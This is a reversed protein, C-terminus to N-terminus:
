NLEFVSSGQTSVKPLYKTATDENNLESRLNAWITRADSVADPDPVKAMAVEFKKLQEEFALSFGASKAEKRILDAYKNINEVMKPAIVNEKAHLQYNIIVFRTGISYAKKVTEGHQQAIYRPADVVVVKSLTEYDAKGAAPIESMFAEDLKLNGYHSQLASEKDSEYPEGTAFSLLVEYGGAGAIFAYYPARMAAKAIGVLEKLTDSAQSYKSEALKFDKATIAKAGENALDVVTKYKDQNIKILVDKGFPGSKLQEDFADRSDFAAKIDTSQKAAKSYQERANEWLMKAESFQQANFADVAKGAAVEGKTWITGAYRAALVKSAEERSQKVSDRANLATQRKAHQNQILTVQKEYEDLLQKAKGYEGRTVAADMDSWVGKAKDLMEGFGASRDIEKVRVWQGQLTDKRATIVEPVPQKTNGSTQNGMNANNQNNTTNAPNKLGSTNPNNGTNPRNQNSQAVNQGNNEPEVPKSVNIVYIVAFVVIAIFPVALTMTMANQKGKRRRRKSRAAASSMSGVDALVPEAEVGGLGDESPSQVVPVPQAPVQTQPANQSSAPTPQSQSSPGSQPPAPEAAPAQQSSEPANAQAIEENLQQQAAEADCDTPYALGLQNPNERYGFPASCMMCRDASESCQTGCSHCVGLLHAIGNVSSAKMWFQQTTPGRMLSDANLTGDAIMKKVHDVSIGPYFAHVADRVYWPGFAIPTMAPAYGYGCEGCVDGPQNDAGCVCCLDPTKDRARKFLEVPSDYSLGLQNRESAPAMFSAGCGSCSSAGSEVAGGCAHCLGLLHAVGPVHKAKVWVQHTTPGRLAVEPSIKKGSVMKRIVDYCCGPRHKM